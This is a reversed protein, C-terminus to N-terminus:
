DILDLVPSHEIGLLIDLVKLFDVPYVVDVKFAWDTGEVRLIGAEVMASVLVTANQDHFHDDEEMSKELQQTVEIVGLELTKGKLEEAIEVVKDEWKALQTMRKVNANVDFVKCDRTLSAAICKILALCPEKNAAKYIVNHNTCGHDSETNISQNSPYGIHVYVMDSQPDVTYYCARIDSADFVNQSEAIILM